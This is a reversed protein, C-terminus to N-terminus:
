KADKSGLRLKPAIGISPLIKWENNGIYLKTSPSFEVIKYRYDSQPHDEYTLLFISSANNDTTPAFARIKM